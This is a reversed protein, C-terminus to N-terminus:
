AFFYFYICAFLVIVGLTSVVLVIRGGQGTVGARAQTTTEVIKGRNSSQYDPMRM